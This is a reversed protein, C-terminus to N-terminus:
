FRIRLFVIRHFIVFRPLLEAASLLRREITEISFLPENAASNENGTSEARTADFPFDSRDFPGSSLRFRKEADTETQLARPDLERPVNQIVFVGIRRFEVFTFM